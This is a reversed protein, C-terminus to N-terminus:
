GTGEYISADIPIALLLVKRSQLRLDEDGVRKGEDFYVFISM